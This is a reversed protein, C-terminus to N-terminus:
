PLTAIRPNVVLTCAQPDEAGAFSFRLQVPCARADLDARVIPLRSSTRGARVSLTRDFLVLDEGTEGSLRVTLRGMSRTRRARPGRAIVQFSLITPRAFNVGEFIAESGPELTLAEGRFEPEDTSDADIWSFGHGRISTAAERVDRISAALDSGEGGPSSSSLGLIGHAALVRFIADALIQHGKPKPHIFDFFLKEEPLARFADDVDVLPVDLKAAEERLATRYEEVVPVTRSTDRPLPGPLFLVAIGDERCADALTRLCERFVPLPVRPGDITRGEFFAHRYRDLERTRLYSRIPELMAAVAQLTRVGGFDLPRPASMGPSENARDEDSLRIAPTFDNWHGTYLVVVDPRLSRVKTEFARTMQFTSYGPTGANIVRIGQDPLARRLAGELRTAFVAGLSVGFGFTCSDGLLAVLPGREAADDPLRWGRFGRPTAREFEFGRSGNAGTLDAGPAIEWFCTESPRLFTRTETQGLDIGVFEVPVAVPAFRFGVIRLAAEALLFPVAVLVLAFVLKRFAFESGPRHSPVM